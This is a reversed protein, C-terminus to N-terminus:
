LQGDNATIAAAAWLSQAVVDTVSGGYRTASSFADLARHHLSQAQGKGGGPAVIPAPLLWEHDVRHRVQKESARVMAERARHSRDCFGSSRMALAVNYTQVATLLELVVQALHPDPLRDVM